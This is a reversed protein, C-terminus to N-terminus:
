AIDPAAVTAPLKVVPHPMATPLADPTNKPVICITLKVPLVQTDENEPPNEFAAANLPPPPLLVSEACNSRTLTVRVPVFVKSAPVM